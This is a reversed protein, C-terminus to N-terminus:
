IRLVLAVLFGLIAGAAILPLAPMPRKQAQNAFIINMLIFGLMAGFAAFTAWVTSERVLAAVFLGPLALDGTGLLMFDEGPKVEKLRRGLRGAKTPIILAFIVGREVLGKLMQVMHGTAYVAAIDYFSLIVLLALGTIWPLSLGLSVAIGAVGLVIVLNQWWIRKYFFKLATLGLAAAVALDSNLWIDCLFWLGAFVALTLFAEFFIRSKVRRVLLFFLLTMLLFLLLFYWISVPESPVYIPAKLFIFRATIIILFFCISFWALGQIIIIFPIKAKKM